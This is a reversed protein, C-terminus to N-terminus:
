ATGSPRGDVHELVDRADEVDEFDEVLERVCVATTREDARRPRSAATSLELLDPADPADDAVEVRIRQAGPEVPRLEASREFPGPAHPQPGARSGAPLTQLSSARAPFPRAKGREVIQACGGRLGVYGPGIGVHPGFLGVHYHRLSVSRVRLGVGARVLRCLKRGPSHLVRDM